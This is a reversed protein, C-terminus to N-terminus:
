PGRVEEDPDGDDPQGHKPSSKLTRRGDTEVDNEEYKPLDNDAAGHNEANRQSAIAEVKAEPRERLVVEEVEVDGLREGDKIAAIVPM